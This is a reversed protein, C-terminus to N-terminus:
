QRTEQAPLSRKQNALLEKLAERSLFKGRLIVARIKETNRIDDAPNADLLVLNAVKGAEVSGFDRQIGLFEAARLTATQLAEAPSLGASVLFQLEEHLSFGPYTYPNPTDTGALLPVGLSHMARVIEIDHAFLRLQIDDNRPDPVGGMSDWFKRLEDPIYANRPNERLNPDHISAYSRLVVLTPCQWTGNQVFKEFLTGAKKSDYSSLIAQNVRYFLDRATKPDDANDAEASMQKLQEPDSSLYLPIGWLHEISKQGLDSAEAPTLSNPIHGVFPVRADKAELAIALYAERSLTNYVKLFDAGEKILESVVRHAEAQDKVSVSFPWFPHEGELIPGAAYVEPGLRSGNSIEKRLRGIQELPIDGGMDRIGTVGNAVFMPFFRDPQNKSLAHVHMDWLGAILFKGEADVTVVDATGRAHSYPTISRIRDGVITVSVDRRPSSTTPNVVTVHNLILTPISDTASQGHVALSLSFCLLLVRFPKM